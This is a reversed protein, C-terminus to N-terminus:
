DRGTAKQISTNRPLDNKAMLEAYTRYPSKPRAGASTSRPSRTAHRADVNHYGPASSVDQQFGRGVQLLQPLSQMSFMFATNTGRATNLIQALGTASRHSSTMLLQFLPPSTRVRRETESQLAKGVVLQLNQLLM